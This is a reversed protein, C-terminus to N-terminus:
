PRGRLATWAHRLGRQALWLRADVGTIVAGTERELAAVVCRALTAYSTCLFSKPSSWSRRDVCRGPYVVCLSSGVRGEIMAGLTAELLSKWGGYYRRDQQPALALVSSVFVVRMPVGPYRSLLESVVSLDRNAADFDAAWNRVDKHIPGLACGLVGVAQPPRSPADGRHGACYTRSTPHRQSLASAEEADRAVLLLDQDRAWRSNLIAQGLRTKAGLVIVLM